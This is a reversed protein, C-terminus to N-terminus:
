DAQNIMLEGGSQNEIARQQVIKEIQQRLEADQSLM